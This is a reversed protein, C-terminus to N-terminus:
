RRRLDAAIAVLRPLLDPLVREVIDTVTAWDIGHCHHVVKDRTMAMEAWPMDPCACRVDAPVNKAAEGLIALNFLIADGKERDLGLQGPTVGVAYRMMREAARIMDDLVLAEDRTSSM